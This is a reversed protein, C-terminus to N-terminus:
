KRKTPIMGRIQRANASDEILTALRRERTEEKKASVVWHTTVRRYWPPQESWWQWAKKNKQFRALMEAPFEKPANEYSYIASKKEDRAAFAKRGADTMLGLKELEAVRKINIASWISGRRRPTFRITYSEDDIRKRVGDIWGYSLACDVSEPWTISKRGSGRKYFGVLLEDAKDYNKVLWKRFAQPTEFFTPNM